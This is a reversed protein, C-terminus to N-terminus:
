SERRLSLEGFPAQIDISFSHNDVYVKIEGGSTTGNKYFKLPSDIQMFVGGFGEVESDGILLRGDRSQVFSEESYLFSDMRVSSILMLVEGAKVSAQHRQYMSYSVPLSVALMIGIISIVLLIEILTFGKKSM